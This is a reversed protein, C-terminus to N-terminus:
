VKLNNSYSAYKQYANSTFTHFNCKRSQPSTVTVEPQNNMESLLKKQRKAAFRNRIIPTILNSSIISGALGTIVEAGNNFPKYINKISKDYDPLKTINFDWDGAYVKGKVKESGKKLIYGREDLLETLKATRLKGTQTLKKGINKLGSTFTYFSLINVAGDGIEQPILFLKQESPIKDNIAIATVQALSSLIWSIFGTQVLMKGPDNSYEKYIKIKFSDWAKSPSFM